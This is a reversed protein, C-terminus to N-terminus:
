RHRIGARTGSARFGGSRGATAGRLVSRQQQRFRIMQTNKLNRRAWSPQTKGRQWSTGSQQRQRNQLARLHRYGARSSRAADPKEGPRAPLRQMIQDLRKLNSRSTKELQLRNWAYDARGTPSTALLIAAILLRILASFGLTNLTM